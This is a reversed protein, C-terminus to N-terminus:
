STLMREFMGEDWAIKLDHETLGADQARKVATRLANLARDRVVDDVDQYKALVANVFQHVNPGVKTDSNVKKDLWSSRVHIGPRSVWLQLMNRVLKAEQGRRLVITKKQGDYPAGDQRGRDSLMRLRLTVALGKTWPDLTFSLRWDDNALSNTGNWTLKELQELLIKTCM